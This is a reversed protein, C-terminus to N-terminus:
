RWIDTASHDQHMASTSRCKDLACGINGRREAAVAPCETRCISIRVCQLLHQLMPLEPRTELLGRSSREITNAAECINGAATPKSPRNSM